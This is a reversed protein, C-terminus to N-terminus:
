MLRGVCASACMREYVSSLATKECCRSGWVTAACRCSFTYMSSVHSWVILSYTEVGFDVSVSMVGHFWSYM